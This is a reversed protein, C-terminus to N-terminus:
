TTNKVDGERRKHERGKGTKCNRKFVSYVTTKEDRRNLSFGKFDYSM